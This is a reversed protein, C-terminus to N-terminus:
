PVELLARLETALQGPEDHLQRWTIRVVRYGSVVAKRDRARDREFAHRTHHTAGGDLEVILNARRWHCDPKIWSGDHLALDANTHPRPIGHDDLVAVFRHELEERTVHEGIRRDDLLAKIAPTGPRGPYRAVLAELSTPSTLRRVEAENAARELEHPTLIAALDLLTRAPTTVPIGDHVTLEDAPLTVRHVHVGACGRRNGTVTIEIARWERRWIAWLAAASWHSLASRPATLVAAM